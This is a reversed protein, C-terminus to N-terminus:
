AVKGDLLNRVLWVLIDKDVPKFLFKKIGIARATETDVNESYGTCLIIPLDPRIELFTKALDTGVVKPMNMDTIILDFALPEKNFAIMAEECNIFASVQYGFEALIRQLLRVIPEEDDIVMIRESGKLQETNQSKRLKQEPPNEEQIPLFICFTTGEGITSEVSIAGDGRTVISNVMALGLGTGEGEKKTTFYPDFIKALTDPHM